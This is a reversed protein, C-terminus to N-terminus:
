LDRICLQKSSDQVINSISSPNLVYYFIYIQMCAHQVRWVMNTFCSNGQRTVEKHWRGKSIIHRRARVQLLTMSVEFQRRGVPNKVNEPGKIYALSDVDQPDAWLYCDARKGDRGARGAQQYYSEITFPVGFHIVSHRHPSVDVFCCLYVTSKLNLLIRGVRNRVTEM